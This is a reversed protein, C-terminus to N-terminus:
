FTYLEMALVLLPPIGEAGKQHRHWFSERDRKYKFLVRNCLLGSCDVRTEPGPNFEEGRSALFGLQRTTWWCGKVGATFTCLTLWQVALSMGCPDKYSIAPPWLSYYSIHHHFLLNSHHEKFIPGWALSYQCGSSALSSLSISVKQFKWLFMVRILSQHLTTNELVTLSYTQTLDSHNNYCCYSVLM